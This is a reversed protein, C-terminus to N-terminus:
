NTVRRNRLIFIYAETSEMNKNHETFTLEAVVLPCSVSKPMRKFRCIHTSLSVILCLLLFISHQNKSFYNM